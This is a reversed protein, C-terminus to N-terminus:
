KSEPLVGDATPVRYPIRSTSIGMHVGNGVPYKVFLFMLVSNNSDRTVDLIRVWQDKIRVEWGVQLDDFLSTPEDSPATNM